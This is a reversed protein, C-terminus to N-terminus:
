PRGDGGGDRPRGRPKNLDERWRGLAGGVGAYVLGSAVIVVIVVIVIVLGPELAAVVV